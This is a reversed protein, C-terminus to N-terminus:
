WEETIDLVGRRVIKPDSGTLDVLTSPLLGKTEGGDIYLDVQDGFIEMATQCSTVAKQGSINASTGVLPYGSAKILEQAIASSTMRFGLTSKQHNLEEALRGKTKLIATLPGPWFQELFRQQEARLDGTYQALMVWDTILVLLPQAPDRRKLRYIEKVAASSTASCGLAYFTETPYVFLADKERIINAILKLEKDQFPYRLTQM